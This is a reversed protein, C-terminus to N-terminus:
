DRSSQSISLCVNASNITTNINLSIERQHEFKNGWGNFRFDLYRVENNVKISIPGTDRLWTDNYNTFVPIVKDVSIRNELLIPQIRAFEAQDPIILVVSEFCTIHRILEVYTEQIHAINALWDSQAHPWALIVADQPEWEAPLVPLLAQNPHM